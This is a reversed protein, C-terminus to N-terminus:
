KGKAQRRCKGALRDLHALCSEVKEAMALQNRAGELAEAQWQAKLRTMYRADGAGEIVRELNAAAIEADDERGAAHLVGLAIRIASLNAAHIDRDRRAADREDMLEQWSPSADMGADQGM